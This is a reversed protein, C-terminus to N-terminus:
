AKQRRGLGQLEGTERDKLLWYTYGEKQIATDKTTLVQILQHVQPNQTDVTKEWAGKNTSTAPMPEWKPQNGFTTPQTTSKSENSEAKPKDKKQSGIFWMEANDALISWVELPNDKENLQAEVMLDCSEYNGLNFKRTYSVKSINM